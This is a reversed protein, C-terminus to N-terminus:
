SKPICGESISPNRRIFAGYAIRRYACLDQLCLRLEPESFFNSTFFSSSPLPEAAFASSSPERLIASPFFLSGFGPPAVGPPHVPLAAGHDQTETNKGSDNFGHAHWRNHDGDHDDLRVTRAQRNRTSQTRCRHEPPDVAFAALLLLLVSAVTIQRDTRLTKLMSRILLSV